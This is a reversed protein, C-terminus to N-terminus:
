FSYELVMDTTPHIKWYMTSTGEGPACTATRLEPIEDGDLDNANILCGEVFGIFNYGGKEYLVISSVIDEDGAESMLRRIPTIYFIKSGVVLKQNESSISKPALLNAVTRDFSGWTPASDINDFVLKSIRNLEDESVSEFSWSQIPIKTRSVVYYGEDIQGTDFITAKVEGFEHKEAKCVYKFDLGFIYISNDGNCYEAISPEVGVFGFYDSSNGDLNSSLQWLEVGQIKSISTGVGMALSVTSYFSTLLVIAIKEKM